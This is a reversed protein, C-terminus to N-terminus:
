RAMSIILKAKEKKESISFFLKFKVLEAERREDNIIPIPSANTRGNTYEASM